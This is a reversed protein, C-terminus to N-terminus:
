DALNQIKKLGLGRLGAVGWVVACRKEVSQALFWGEFRGFFVESRCDGVGDGKTRESGEVM